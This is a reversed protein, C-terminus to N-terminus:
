SKVEVVWTGSSLERSSSAGVATPTLQSMTVARLGASQAFVLFQDIRELFDDAAAATRVFPSCGELLSPSHFFMNIVTTGRAKLASVLRIMQEADHLEPSLSVHNLVRMRSLAALLKDGAPVRRRIAWYARALAEQPQVFGVTAPVELLTGGAFGNEAPMVYVFPDLRRDSYDPGGYERWDTAPSLSTDVLYGLQILHRAIDDSFGWRGSRYSRPAAGFNRAITEHLTKLKRYQLDVPLYSIFSNSATREEEFPPTNWPHPHAGIECRGEERYQALMEIALTSTAVPYSILYTPRVGRHDFIAQLRPIRHINEVSYSPLDYEGWNDEETDITITFYLDCERPLWNWKLRM